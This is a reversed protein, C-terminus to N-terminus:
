LEVRLKDLRWKPRVGKSNDGPQPQNSAAEFSGIRDLSVVTAELVTLVTLARSEYFVRIPRREDNYFTRPHPRDNGLARRIKVFYRIRYVIATKGPKKRTSPSKQGHMM